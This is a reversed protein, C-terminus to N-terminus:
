VTPEAEQYLAKLDDDTGNFRIDQPIDRLRAADDNILDLGLQDKGRDAAVAKPDLARLANNRKERILNQAKIKDLAIADGDFAWANRLIRDAPPNDLVVANPDILKAAELAEELTHDGLVRITITDHGPKQFVIM